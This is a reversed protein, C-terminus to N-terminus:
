KTETSKTETSSAATKASASTTTATTATSASSISASSPKKGSRKIREELLSVDKQSLQSTFKYVAEGTNGYVTVMTNLAASRVTNDRDSIQAAVIPLSKQPQSGCVIM